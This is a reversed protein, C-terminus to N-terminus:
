TTNSVAPRCNIDLGFQSFSTVRCGTFVSDAVYYTVHEYKYLTMDNENWQVKFKIYYETDNVDFRYYTLIHCLMVDRAQHAVPIGFSCYM